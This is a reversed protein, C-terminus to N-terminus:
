FVFSLLGQALSTASVRLVLEVNHILRIEVLRWSKHLLQLGASGILPSDENICAWCPGDLPAQRSKLVADQYREKTEKEYEVIASKQYIEKNTLRLLQDVLLAADMIGHNAVEGRHMTMAHASDGALAVNGHIIL